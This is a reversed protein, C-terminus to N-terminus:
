LWTINTLHKQRVLNRGLLFIGNKLQLLSKQWMNGKWRRQLSSMCLSVAGPRVAVLMVGRPVSYLFCAGCVKLGVLAIAVYTIGLLPNQTLLSKGALLHHALQSTRPLCWHMRPLKQVITHSHADHKGDLRPKQAQASSIRHGLGVKILCVTKRGLQRIEVSHKRLFVCRASTGSRVQYLFTNWNIYHYSRPTPCLSHCELMRPGVPILLQSCGLTPDGKRIFLFFTTKSLDGSVVTTRTSALSLHLPFYCIYCLWIIGM